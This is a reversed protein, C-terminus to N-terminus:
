LDKISEDLRDVLNQKQNYEVEADNFKTQATNVLHLTDM